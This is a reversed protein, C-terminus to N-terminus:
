LPRANDSQQKNDKSRMHTVSTQKSGSSKKMRKKVSSCVNSVKKLVSSAKSKTKEIERLPDFLKKSRSNESGVNNGALDYEQTRSNESVVNNVNQEIIVPILFKTRGSPAISKAQKILFDAHPCKSRSLLAICRRCRKSMVTSQEEVTIEGPTDDRGPVYLLLNYKTELWETMESLFQKETPGIAWIVFADYVVREVVPPAPEPEVGIPRNHYKKACDVFTPEMDYLIDSRNMTTLYRWLNWLTPELDTRVQIWEDFLASTCNDQREFKKIEYYTFGVNEALGRYDNMCDGDLQGPQNLYM